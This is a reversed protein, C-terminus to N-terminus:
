IPGQGVNQLSLRRSASDSALRVAPGRLLVAGLGVLEAEGVGDSRLRGNEAPTNQGGPMPSHLPIVHRIELRDEHVIIREKFLRPDDKM